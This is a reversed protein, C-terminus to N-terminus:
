TVVIHKQIAFQILQATTKIGLQRMITYKHFAITKPSVALTAAAQKMSKGQVLLQLVERQRQTVEKRESKGEPNRIFAEHMGRAIEPTVYFKGKLAVNIAQLLEAAASSKLLYGSAGEGMAQVAFDPDDNMTLFIVKVNPLAQRLARAAHLGNLQPMGLDTVIVDPRIRKAGESLAIGDTATGVVDFHPDLLHQLAELFVKHDDALMVRARKM